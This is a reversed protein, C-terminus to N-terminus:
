VETDDSQDHQFNAPDTVDWQGRSFLRKPSEGPERFGNARWGVALRFGIIDRESFSDIPWPASFSFIRGPIKEEILRTGCHECERPHQRVRAIVEAYTTLGNLSPQQVLMLPQGCDCAYFLTMYPEYHCAGCVFGRSGFMSRILPGDCFPCRLPGRYAMDALWMRWTHRRWQRLLIRHASRKIRDDEAMARQLNPDVIYGIPTRIYALSAAVIDAPILPLLIADRLERLVVTQRRRRAHAIRTATYENFLWALTDDSFNQVPFVSRVTTAFIAKATASDRSLDRVSVMTKAAITADTNHRAEFDRKCQEWEDAIRLTGVQFLRDLDEIFSRTASGSVSPAEIRFIADRYDQRTALDAFKHLEIKLENLSLSKDKVSVVLAGGDWALEIDDIKELSIRGVRDVVDAPVGRVKGGIAEVALVLAVSDQSEIRSAVQGGKMSASFQGNGLNTM